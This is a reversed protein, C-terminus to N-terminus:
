VDTRKTHECPRGDHCLISLTFGEEGSLEAAAWRRWIGQETM